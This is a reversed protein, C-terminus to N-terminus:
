PITLPIFLILTIYYAQSYDRGAWLEIFPKGFIVFGILIFCIVIYQLRGVKIFLDSVLKRDNSQTILTTVKPLFLDSIAKSFNMYMFVLQISVAYIAISTAGQYIGLVFQGTSWYIKDIIVSLFIWFSYISVEKFFGQEIAGFSIEIKLKRLCFWTNAILTVINFLTIIVVMGIAKYGMFLMIIMVVPNLITRILVVSKQFIFKEYATIISGFISLPFTVALNATMLIMMIRVKHLEEFTMKAKFINEVNFSLILGAILAVIGIFSFMLLFMGFMKKLKETEGEARFKATYRILANGFGLDLVTLYAVVSAVLSYLGYEDQGMMRLM